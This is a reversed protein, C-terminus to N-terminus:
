SSHPEVCAPSSPDCRQSGAIASGFNATRKSHLQQRQQVADGPEVLLDRASRRLVDIAKQVEAQHQEDHGEQHRDGRPGTLRSRRPWRAPGREAAEAPASAKTASTVIFWTDACSNDGLAGALRSGQAAPPACRREDGCRPCRSIPVIAAAFFVRRQTTPASSTGPTAASNAPMQHALENYWLSCVSVACAAANASTRPRKGPILGAKSIRSARSTTM